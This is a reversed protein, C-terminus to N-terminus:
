NYLTKLNLSMVQVTSRSQEVQQIYSLEQIFPSSLLLLFDSLSIKEKNIYEDELSILFQCANEKLNKNKEIVLISHLLTDVLFFFENKSLYQKKNADFIYFFMELKEKVDGRTVISMCCLFERLDLVGGEVEIFLEFIKQLQENKILIKNEAQYEQNFKIMLNVFEQKSIGRKQFKKSESKPRTMENEKLPSNTEEVNQNEQSQDQPYKTELLKNFEKQIQKIEDISFKTIKKLQYHINSNDKTWKDSFEQYFQEMLAIRKEECITFNMKAKLEDYATNRLITDSVSPNKFYDLIQEKNIYIMSIICREFPIISNEMFMLDWVHFVCTINLTNILLTLLYNPCQMELFTQLHNIEDEKNFYSPILNRLVYCEAMFGILGSGKGNKQYYKEPLINDILHCYLQFAVEENTFCLLVVALYNMGQCYGLYPYKVVLAILVNKINQRISEVNQGNQLNEIFQRSSYNFVQSDSRGLDVDKTIIEIESEYNEKNKVYQELYEYYSFSQFTSKKKELQYLNISNRWKESIYSNQNWCLDNCKIIKIQIDLERHCINCVRHPENPKVDYGPIIAKQSGCDACVYRLCRKCKHIRKLKFFSLNKKCIECNQADYGKNITKNIIKRFM